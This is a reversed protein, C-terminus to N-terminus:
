PSCGQERSQGLFRPALDTPFFPTPNARRKHYPGGLTELFHRFHRGCWLPPFGAPPPSLAIQLFFFPLSLHENRPPLSKCCWFFFPTFRVYSSGLYASVCSRRPLASVGSRFFRPTAGLRASLFFPSTLSRPAGRAHPRGHTAAPSVFEFFRVGLLCGLESHPAWTFHVRKLFTDLPSFDLPHPGTSDVRFTVPPFPHPFPPFCLTCSFPSLQVPFFSSGPFPFFEMGWPGGFLLPGIPFFPGFPPFLPFQPPPPPPFVESLIGPVM